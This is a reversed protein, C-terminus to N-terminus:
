QKNIQDDTLQDPNLDPIGPADEKALGILGAEKDAKMQAVADASAETAPGNFPEGVVADTPADFTKANEVNPKDVETGQPMLGTIVEPQKAVPTMGIANAFEVQNAGLQNVAGLINQMTKAVMASAAMAAVGIGAACIIGIKMLRSEDLMKDVQAQMNTAWTDWESKPEYVQHTPPGEYQKEGGLISEIERTQESKPGIKDEDM